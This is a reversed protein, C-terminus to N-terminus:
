FFEGKPDLSLNRVFWENSENAFKQLLVRLLSAEGSNVFINVSEPGCPPHTLRSLVALDKQVANQTNESFSIQPKSSYGNLTPPKISVCARSSPFPVKYIVFDFARLFM